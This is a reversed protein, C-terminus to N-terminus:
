YKRPPKQISRHPLHSHAETISAVTFSQKCTHNRIHLSMSHLSSAGANSSLLRTSINTVSQARAAPQEQVRPLPQVRAAAPPGEGVVLAQGDHPMLIHRVPVVLM